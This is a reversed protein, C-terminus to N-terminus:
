NYLSIDINGRNKNWDCLEQFDTKNLWVLLEDAEAVCSVTDHRMCDAPHTSLLGLTLLFPRKIEVGEWEGIAIKM